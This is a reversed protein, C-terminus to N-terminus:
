NYRPSFFCGTRGMYQRCNIPFKEMDRSRRPAWKQLYEPNQLELLWPCCNSCHDTSLETIKTCVPPSFFYGKRMMISGHSSQAMPVRCSYNIKVNFTPLYVLGMSIMHSTFIQPNYLVSLDFLGLWKGWGSHFTTFIKTSCFCRM